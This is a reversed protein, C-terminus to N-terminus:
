EVLLLFLIQSHLVLVRIISSSSPRPFNLLLLSHTPHSIECILFLSKSGHLEGSILTKHHHPNLPKVATRLLIPHM